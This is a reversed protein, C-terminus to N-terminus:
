EWELFGIGNVRHAYAAAECIHRFINGSCTNPEELMYALDETEEQNLYTMYSAFLMKMNKETLYIPCKETLWRSDYDTISWSRDCSIVSVNAIHPRKMNEMIDYPINYSWDNGYCHVFTYAKRMGWCQFDKDPLQEKLYKEIDTMSTYISRSKVKVHYKDSRSKYDTQELGADSLEDREFIRKERFRDPVPKLIRVYFERSM